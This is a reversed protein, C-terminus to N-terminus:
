WGTSKGALINAINYRRCVSEAVLVGYWMSRRGSWASGHDRQQSSAARPILSGMAQTRSLADDVHTAHRRQVFANCREGQELVEVEM